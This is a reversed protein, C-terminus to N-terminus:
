KCCYCGYSSGAAVNHETINALQFKSCLNLYALYFFFAVVTCYDAVCCIVNPILQVWNMCFSTMGRIGELFKVSKLFNSFIAKFTIPSSM